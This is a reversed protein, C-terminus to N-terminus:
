LLECVFLLLECDVIDDVIVGVFVFLRAVVFSVGVNDIDVVVLSSEFRDDFRILRILSTQL